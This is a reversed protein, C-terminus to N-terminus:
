DTSSNASASKGYATITTIIEDDVMPRHRTTATLWEGPKVSKVAEVSGNPVHLKFTLYKRNADYAVFEVPFTFPAKWSKTSSYPVVRSIGDSYNDFGSWTLVVRNGPTFKTLEARAQDGPVPAKITLMRTAADFAVMEGSWTYTESRPQVAQATVRVATLALACFATIATLMWPNRM